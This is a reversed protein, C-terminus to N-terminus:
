RETALIHHQYHKVAAVTTRGRSAEPSSYAAAAIAAPMTTTSRAMESEGEPPYAGAFTEQGASRGVIRLASVRDALSVAQNGMRLFAVM